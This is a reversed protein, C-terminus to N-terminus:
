RGQSKMWSVVDPVSDPRVSEFLGHLERQLFQSVSPGGHGDYIGIFVVQGALGPGVLGPDWSLIGLKEALHTQLERPDLSLAVM